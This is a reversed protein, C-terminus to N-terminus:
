DVPGVVPESDPGARRGPWQVLAVMVLVGGLAALQGASITEHDFWGWALAGLPIVYTVMGAYLPGRRQILGYFLMLCIGTGIVGLIAVWVMALGPPTQSSTKLSEASVGWPLMILAAGGLASCTLPLAPTKGFRRKIFTNSIAYAVPVSIALILDIRSMRQAPGVGSLAAICGLGGIVGIWQRVSARRGLMIWQTLITMIPVLTILMGIFASDQYKGILYPQMIFPYVYGVGIVVGLGSLDSRTLPWHRRRMLVFWILALVAAGSLTRWGGISVPGFVDSAKKMLIFSSAWVGCILAFLLHDM